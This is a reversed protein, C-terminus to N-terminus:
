DEKVDEEEDDIGISHSSWAFQKLVKMKNMARGFESKVKKKRRKVELRQKTIARQADEDFKMSVQHKKSAIETQRKLQETKKKFTSEEIDEVDDLGLKEMQAAMKKQRLRDKLKAGHERRRSDEEHQKELFAHDVDRYKERRERDLQRQYDDRLQAATKESAHQSHHHHHHHRHSPHSSDTDAGEEVTSHFVIEEGLDEEEEGEDKSAHHSHHSHHSAHHRHSSVEDVGEDVDYLNENGKKYVIEEGLDEDVVDGDVDERYEHHHGSHGSHHHSHRHHHSAHRENEEEDSEEEEEEDSNNDVVVVASEDSSSDKEIIRTRSKARAIDRAMREARNLKRKTVEEEEEENEENDIIDDDGSSSADSESDHAAKRLAAKDAVRKQREDSNMKRMSNRKQQSRQALLNQKVAQAQSERYVQDYPLLYPKSVDAPCMYHVFEIPVIVLLFIWYPILLIFYLLLTSLDIGSEIHSSWYYLIYCVIYPIVCLVITLVMKQLVLPLLCFHHWWYHWIVAHQASSGVCYNKLQACIYYISTCCAYLSSYTRRSTDKFQKGMRKSMTPRFGITPASMMKRTGRTSGGPSGPAPVISNPRGIGGELDEGEEAGTTGSLEDRARKAAWENSLSDFQSELSM